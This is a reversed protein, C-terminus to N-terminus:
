ELFLRSYKAANARALGRGPFIGYGHISLDDSICQVWSKKPRGIKAKGFKGCNFLLNELYKSTYRSEPMSARSIKMFMRLRARKVEEEVSFRINLRRRCDVTLM